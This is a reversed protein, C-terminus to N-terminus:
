KVIVVDKGALRDYLEYDEKYRKQIGQRRVTAGVVKVVEGKKSRNLHLNEGGEVLQDNLESLYREMEYVLVSKCETVAKLPIFFSQSRFHKDAINDPIRQVFRLFAKESITHRIFFVNNLRAPYRYWYNRKAKLDRYASLMRDKPDRIVLVLKKGRCFRAFERHSYFYLRLLKGNSLGAPDVRHIDPFFSQYDPSFRRILLLKLTSNGSKSNIPFIEKEEVLYFIEIPDFLRKGLYSLLITRLHGFISPIRTLLSLKSM